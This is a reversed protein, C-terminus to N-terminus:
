NKPPLTSAYAPCKILQFNDSPATTTQKLSVSHVDEYEKCYKDLVEYEHTASESLNTENTQVQNSSDRLLYFCNCKILQMISIIKAYRPYKFHALRRKRLWLFGIIMLGVLILFLLLCSITVGITAASMTNNDNNNIPRESTVQCEREDLSSIIVNCSSDVNILISQVPITIDNSIWQEMCSIIALESSSLTASGHRLLARFTVAQPSSPFCRFVSDTINERSLGCQCCLNINSAIAVSIDEM